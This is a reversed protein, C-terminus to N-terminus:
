SNIQDEERKRKAREKLIEQRKLKRKRQLEKDLKDPDIGKKLLKKRRNIERKEEFGMEELKIEMERRTVNVETLIESVKEENLDEFEKM